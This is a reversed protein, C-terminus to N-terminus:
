MRQQKETVTATETSTAIAALTLATVTKMAVRVLSRLCTMVVTSAAM